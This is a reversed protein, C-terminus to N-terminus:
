TTYVGGGLYGLLARKGLLALIVGLPGLLVTWDGLGWQTETKEWEKNEDKKRTEREGSAKEIIDRRLFLRERRLEFGRGEAQSASPYQGLLRAGKSAWFICVL